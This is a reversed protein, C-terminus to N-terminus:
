QLIIDRVSTWPFFQIKGDDRSLWLGVENSTGVFGVYKFEPESVPTVIVRRDNLTYTTQRKLNELIESM